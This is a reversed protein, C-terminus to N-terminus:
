QPVIWALYSGHITTSGATQNDYVASFQVPTNAPFTKKGIMTVPSFSGGANAATQYPQSALDTVGSEVISTGVPQHLSVRVEWLGNTNVVQGVFLVYLISAYTPTALTGSNYFATVSTATGGSLFPTQYKFIPVKKDVYAKRAAHDNATPDQNGLTLFASAELAKSGDRHLVYNDFFDKVTAFNSNVESALAATGGVFTYPLNFATM